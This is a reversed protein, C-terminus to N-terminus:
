GEGRIGYLTYTGDVVTPPGGSITNTTRARTLRAGFTAHRGNLNTNTIGRGVQVSVAGTSQGTQHEFAFLAVNSADLAEIGLKITAGADLTIGSAELVLLSYASVDFPTGTDELGGTDLVDVTAQTSVKLAYPSAAEQQLSTLNGGVSLSTANVIAATAGTGDGVVVGASGNGILRPAFPASPPLPEGEWEALALVISDTSTNDVKVIGWSCRSPPRREYLSYVADQEGTDTTITPIALGGGSYLGAGAHVVRYGWWKGKFTDVQLPRVRVLKM